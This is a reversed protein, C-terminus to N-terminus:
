VDVEVTTFEISKSEVGTCMLSVPEPLKDSAYNVTVGGDSWTTMKLPGSICLLHGASRSAIILVAVHDWPELQVM